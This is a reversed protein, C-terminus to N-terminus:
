VVASAGGTLPAAVTKVVSVVDVKVGAESLAKQVAFWLMAVNAIAIFFLGISSTLLEMGSFAVFEKYLLSCAILIIVDIVQMFVTIGILNLIASGYARLPPIFYLFVGIPFLMVGIILLLQRLILTVLAALLGIGFFGVWLINLASMNQVNFINEFEANWLMLTIGSSLNLILSYILLSANVCIVILVASKFWEKAEKRQVEDYSGLLFKFGVALFILLYFASIIGVIVQWFSQFHYPDINATIMAKAIEMLPTLFGIILNSISGLIADVIAGPLNTVSEWLGAHVNASLLILFLGILILKKNM